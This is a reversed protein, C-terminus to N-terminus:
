LQAASLSFQFNNVSSLHTEQCQLCLEHVDIFINCERKMGSYIQEVAIIFRPQRVVLINLHKDMSLFVM